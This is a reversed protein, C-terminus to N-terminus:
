FNFNSLINHFMNQNLREIGILKKGIRVKLPGKNYAVFM